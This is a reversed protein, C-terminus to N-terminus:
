SAPAMSDRITDRISDESARVTSAQSARVVRADTKALVKRCHEQVVIKYRAAKLSMLASLAVTLVCYLGAAVLTAYPAMHIAWCSRNQSNGKCRSLEDLYFTTKLVKTFVFMYWGGVVLMLLIGTFVCFYIIYDEMSTKHPYVVMAIVWFLIAVSLGAALAMMMQIILLPTGCYVALVQCLQKQYEGSGLLSCDPYQYSVCQGQFFEISTQQIPLWFSNGPDFWDDGQRETYNAWLGIGQSYRATGIDGRQGMWDASVMCYWVLVVLSAAFFICTGDLIYAKM